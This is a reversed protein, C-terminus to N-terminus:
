DVFNMRSDNFLKRNKLLLEKIEDKILNLNVELPIAHIGIKISVNKRYFINFFEKDLSIKESITIM